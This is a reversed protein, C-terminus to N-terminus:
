KKEELVKVRDNLEHIVEYMRGIVESTKSVITQMDLFMTKLTSIDEEITKM